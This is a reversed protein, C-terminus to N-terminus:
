NSRTTIMNENGQHIRWACIVIVVVNLYNGRRSFQGKLNRRNRENKNVVRTDDNINDFLHPSQEEITVYYYTNNCLLLTYVEGVSMCLYVRTEKYLVNGVSVLSLVTTPRDRITRDSASRKDLSKTINATIDFTCFCVIGRCFRIKM